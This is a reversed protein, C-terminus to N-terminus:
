WDVQCHLAERFICRHTKKGMGCIIGRFFPLHKFVNPHMISMAVLPHGSVTIHDQVRSKLDGFESEKEGHFRYGFLIVNIISGITIDVHGYLDHEKVGNSIGQDIKDFITYIEDLVQLQPTLLRIKYM